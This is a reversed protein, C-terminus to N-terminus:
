LEARVDALMMYDEIGSAKQRLKAITERVEEVADRDLMPDNGEWVIFGTLFVASDM